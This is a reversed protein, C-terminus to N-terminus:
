AAQGPAPWGAQDAWFTVCRRLARRAPPHTFTAVAPARAPARRLLRPRGPPQPELRRAALM